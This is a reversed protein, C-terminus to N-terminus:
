AAPSETKWAKGSRIADLEENAARYRGVLRRIAEVESATYYRKVGSGPKNAQTSLVVVGTRLWYDLVRFSIGTLELVEPTTYLGCPGTAEPMRTQREMVTM